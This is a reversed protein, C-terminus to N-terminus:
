KCNYNSIKLLKTDIIKSFLNVFIDHAIVFVLIKFSIKVKLNM